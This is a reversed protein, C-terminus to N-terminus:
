PTGAMHWDLSGSFISTVVETVKEVGVALLVATRERLCPVELL